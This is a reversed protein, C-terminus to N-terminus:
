ARRPLNLGQLNNWEISKDVIRGDSGNKNTQLTEDIVDEIGEMRLMRNIIKGMQRVEGGQDNWEQQTEIMENLFNRMSGDNEFFTLCSPIALFVPMRLVFDMTPQYYSSIRILDPLLLMFEDSQEGDVISTRNVCLHWIYKEVPAVVQQFVTEHVAQQENRDEVGLKKLGSPTTLWITIWRIRMLYIHIDAAEILSLSLPNLTFILQPILDAKVLALLAEASSWLILYRFMKMSASTIVQCPSSILMLISQIFSDLSEDTTQGFSGLFEDASEEDDPNVSELLKLAKAELAADLKPQSKVTAVLSRFVVIKESEFEFDDEDWNVFACCDSNPSDSYPSIKANSTTM